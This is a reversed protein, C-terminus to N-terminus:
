CKVPPRRHGCRSTSHLLRRLLCCRLRRRLLGRLLRGLLRRRLLGCLLGGLGGLLSGLLGGGLGGPLGGRLGCPLGATRLLKGYRGNRLPPARTGGSRADASRAARPALWGQGAGARSKEHLPRTHYSAWVAAPRAVVVRRSAIM